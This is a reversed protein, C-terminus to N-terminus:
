AVVYGGASVSVIGFREAWGVLRDVNGEWDGSPSLGAAVREVLEDRALPHDSAEVVAVLEAVGYVEDVFSERLSGSSFNDSIRHYGDTGEAVMGLAHLFVLWTRAEERSGIATSELLQACCDEVANAKSPVAAHVDTIDLDAPPVLRYRM